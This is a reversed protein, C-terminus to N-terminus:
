QAIPVGDGLPLHKDERRSGSTEPAKDAPPSYKFSIQPMKQKYRILPVPAFPTKDDQGQRKQGKQAARYCM